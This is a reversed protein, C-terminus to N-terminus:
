EGDEATYLKGVCFCEKSITRIQAGYVGAFLFTFLWPVFEKVRAQNEQGNIDTGLLLNNKTTIKIYGSGALNNLPAFTCKGYSNELTM